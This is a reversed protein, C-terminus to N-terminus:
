PVYSKVSQGSLHIACSIKEVTEVVEIGDRITTVTATMYRNGAILLRSVKAVSIGM